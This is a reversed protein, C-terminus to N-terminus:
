DDASEEETVSSSEQTEPEPDAPRELEIGAEAAEEIVKDIWYNRKIKWDRKSPEKSGTYVLCDANVLALKYDDEELANRISTEITQLRQIEKKENHNSISLGLLVMAGIFAFISILVIVATVGSQRKAKKISRNTTEYVEQITLFRPDDSFLIKAKQYAQEFKAKWATSILKKADDGHSTDAIADMDINSQSLFLFDFLDEKSNPIPFGSILSVLQNDTKTAPRSYYYSHSWRRKIPERTAEIAELAAVFEKVTSNAQTQRFEYGCLPCRGIYSDVAEGCNPCKHLVGEYVTRHELENYNHQKNDNVTGDKIGENNENIAGGCKPCYKEWGALEQGCHGCFM